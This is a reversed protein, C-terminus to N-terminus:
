ISFLTVKLKKPFTPKYIKISRLASKLAKEEDLLEQLQRHNAEERSVIEARETHLADISTIIESFLANFDDLELDTNLLTDPDQMAVQAKHAIRLIEKQLKERLSGSM